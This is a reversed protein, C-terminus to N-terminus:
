VGLAIGRFIGFCPGTAFILVRRVEPRRLAYAAAVAINNVLGETSKRHFEPEPDKTVATQFRNEKAISPM